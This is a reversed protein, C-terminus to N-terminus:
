SVSWCTDYISGEGGLALKKVIQAGDVARARIEAGEGSLDTLTDQDFSTPPLNRSATHADLRKADELLQEAHQTLTPM